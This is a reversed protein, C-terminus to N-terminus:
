SDAGTQAKNIPQVQEIVYAEGDNVIRFSFDVQDGVQVKNLLEVDQVQFAMTMSPWEIEPIPDHALTVENATLDIAKVKGVGKILKNVDTDHSMSQHMDAQAEPQQSLRDLVGSLSAESDILFQGSSVVLDGDHLGQLIETKGDVQRGTEVQVPRFGGEEKVIAVKRRGTDIVSESPVALAQQAQQRLRVNAYMGPLFEGKSNPLEIRVRLTRTTEDLTPYLYSVEGTVSQGPRSQLDVEAKAGIKILGADREPVEAILWVKSLDVIQMLSSGSVLQEGERVGLEAVIGTAPSYIGIRTTAQGTRTVNDIEAKTMGLLRLRARAAEALSEINQLGTVNLLALYEKQASLLEPSYIEAIKQNKQVTDGEARVLLRDVFGPVRTQVSYYLRENPAIRGVTSVEEGFTAMEVKSTRIALNQLTTSPITVGGDGGGAEAYKPVLQMDMFPSKGPKDFKQNPVMPDYWYLVEKGSDDQVVGNQAPEMAPHDDHATGSQPTPYFYWGLLALMSFVVAIAIKKPTTM